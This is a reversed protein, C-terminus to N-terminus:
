RQNRLKEIKRLNRVTNISLIISLVSPIITLVIIWQAFTLGEILKIM